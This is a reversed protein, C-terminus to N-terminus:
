HRSALTRLMDFTMGMKALVEALKAEFDEKPVAIMFAKLSRVSPERNAFFEDRIEQNMLSAERM